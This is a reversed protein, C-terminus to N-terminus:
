SGQKYGRFGAGQGFVGEPQDPQLQGDKTRQKIIWARIEGKDDEYKALYMNMLVSDGQQRAMEVVGGNILVTDLEYPINAIDGDNVLQALQAWYTYYLKGGSKSVWGSQPATWIELQAVSSQTTNSPQFYRYVVPDGTSNVDTMENWDEDGPVETLQNITSNNDVWFVTSLSSVDAALNLLQTGTGITPTVFVSRDQGKFMQPLKFERTLEKIITNIGDKAQTMGNTSQDQCITAM